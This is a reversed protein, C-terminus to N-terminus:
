AAVYGAKAQGFTAVTPQAGKAVAYAVWWTTRHAKDADALLQPKRFRFLLPDPVTGDTLVGQQRLNDAAQWVELLDAVLGDATAYAAAVDPTPNAPNPGNDVVVKAVQLLEGTIRDAWPTLVDTALTDGLKRLAATAKRDFRFGVGNVLKPLIQDAGSSLKRLYNAVEDAGISQEVLADALNDLQEAKEADTATFVKLGDVVRNQADCLEGLDDLTRALAKSVPVGSSEILRDLYARVTLLPFHGQMNPTLTNM